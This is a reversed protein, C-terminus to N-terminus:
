YYQIATRQSWTGGGSMATHKSQCWASRYASSPRSCATTISAVPENSNSNSTTFQKGDSNRTYAYTLEVVLRMRAGAETTASAGTSTISNRGACSHGNVGGSVSAAAIPVGNMTTLMAVASLMVILKKMKNKM